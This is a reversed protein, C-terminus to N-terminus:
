ILNMMEEYAYYHIGNLNGKVAQLMSQAVVSAEIPRAPKPLLFSLRQMLTGFFKEAMRKEIRNGMLFSPRFIHIAQYPFTSVVEETEGKLRNYFILSQANAMQASVLAYQQYGAEIGFRAANVPIDFDITKYLQKNGKVKKMTTGICCFIIDGKRMAKQFQETNNFDVVQEELKPHSISLSKRVLVRVTTFSPDSLLKQLLHSGVLGSAGLLLATKSHILYFYIM